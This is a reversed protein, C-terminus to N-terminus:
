SPRFRELVPLAPLADLASVEVSIGLYEGCHWTPYLGAAIRREFRRERPTLYKEGRDACWRHFWYQGEWAGKNETTDKSNGRPDVCDHWVRNVTHVGEHVILGIMSNMGMGTEEEAVWSVTWDGFIGPNLRVPEGFPDGAMSPLAPDATVHFSVGNTLLWTYLNTAGVVPIPLDFTLAKM